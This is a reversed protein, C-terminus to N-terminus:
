KPDPDVALPWRPLSASVVTPGGPASSIETQGGLMRMRERMGVLGLHGGRAARAADMDPDFGSGDDRVEVTIAEPGALIAIQVHEADSHRRVNSLAERILSILAIQQSDTLSAVDGSLEIEPVIATRASFTEAVQDLAQHLSGSLLPSRVATSLRRLDDDLALLQAQLDDLRGIARARDPHEAIMPSLQERFLRLDQALLHVDQQPGDHLDFRLRQVQRQLAAVDSVVQDASDRPVGAPEHM